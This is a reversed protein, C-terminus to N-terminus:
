TIVKFEKVIKYKRDLFYNAGEYIKNTINISDKHFLSLVYATTANIQRDGISHTGDRDYISGKGTLLGYKKLRGKIWQLFKKSGSSISLTLYKDEAKYFCGDGDIEGRLWDYFMNDPIQLKGLKNSKNPMLGMNELFYYFKRSTFVYRWNDHSDPHVSCDYTDLYNEAIEQVQKVLSKDKSSFNMIPRNQRLSGDSTILGSLYALDANWGLPNNRAKERKENRKKRNNYKVGCSRSCFKGQGRDVNSQYTEFKKGCEKCIRTIM